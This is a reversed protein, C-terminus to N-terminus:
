SIVYGLSMTRPKFHHLALNRLPYLQQDIQIKWKHTKPSHSVDEVDKQGAAERKRRKAARAKASKSIKRTEPPQYTAGLAQLHPLEFTSLTIRMFPTQTQRVHNKGSLAEIIKEARREEKSEEGAEEHEDGDSQKQELTGIENYQYLGKMRSALRPALATSSALKQKQANNADKPSSKSTSPTPPVTHFALPLGPNEQFSKLAFSVWNKIKGQSTIRISHAEDEQTSMKNPRLALHPWQVFWSCGLHRTQM